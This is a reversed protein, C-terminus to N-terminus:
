VTEICNVNGENSSSLTVAKELTQQLLFIVMELNNSIVKWKSERLVSVIFGM